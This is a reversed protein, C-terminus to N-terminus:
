PISPLDALADTILTSSSDTTSDTLLTSVGTNTPLICAINFISAEPDLAKWNMYSIGVQEGPALTRVEKIARKQVGGVYERMICSIEVDETNAEGCASSGCSFPIVGASFHTQNEGTAGSYSKRLLPCMIWLAMNPDKNIIGMETWKMVQAQAPNIAACSSGPVNYMDGLSVSPLLILSFFLGLSFNVLKM